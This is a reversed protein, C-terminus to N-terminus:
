RVLHAADFSRRVHVVPIETQQCVEQCYDELPCVFLLNRKAYKYYRAYEGVLSEVVFVSQPTNM